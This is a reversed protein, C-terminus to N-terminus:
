PRLICYKRGDTCLKVASGDKTNYLNVEWKALREVVEQSPHGYRNGEGASVWACVPNVVTLLHEGTGNKSGHHGVKLIEYSKPAEGKEQKGEIYSAVSEEAEKELDGTFLMAFDGYELSLVTSFQNEDFPEETMREKMTRIGWLCQMQMQEEMVREGQAMTLVTTGKSQALM